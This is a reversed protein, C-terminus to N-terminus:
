GKKIKEFIVHFRYSAPEIEVELGLEKAIKKLEKETYRYGIGSTNENRFVTCFLYTAKAKFSKYFLGSKTKDPVDLHYIRGGDKLIRKCEKIVHKAKDNPIYQLFGFSFIKDFHESEFPSRELADHQMWTIAPDKKSAEQLLKKSFDVDTLNAGTRQKIRIAISGDGCGIDLINEDKTPKVIDYVRNAYEDFASKSTDGHVKAELNEWWERPTVDVDVLNKVKGMFAGIDKPKIM